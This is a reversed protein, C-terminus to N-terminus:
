EGHVAEPRTPDVGTTELERLLRRGELIRQVSTWTAGAAVIVVATMVFTTLAGLILVGFREGREMFGVRLSHLRKEASARTYSTMVSATIAWMVLAVGFTDGARTRGLAIGGFIVLDSLRDISSDFFAGASSSLGQQRAVVGDVLDCFGAVMLLLGAVFSRELAFAWAALFSVGAGALTLVDPSIRLERVFPFIRYVVADLDEGLRAKIM